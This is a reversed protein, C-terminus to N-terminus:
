LVECEYELAVKSLHDFHKNMRQEDAWVSELFRKADTPNKFAGVQRQTVPTLAYWDDPASQNCGVIGVESSYQTNTFTETEWKIKATKTMPKTPKAAKTNHLKNPM